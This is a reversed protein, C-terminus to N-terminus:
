FNTDLWPLLTTTFARSAARVAGATHEEVLGAVAARALWPRGLYAAGLDRVDASVDPSRSTRRCSAGSADGALHWAGNNWPCFEDRVGIVVDVPLEYRRAALARSVDVLRVWLGDRLTGRAARLDHLLSLVPDDPAMVQYETEHQLDQDLLFGWLAAHSAPDAAHAREVMVRGISRGNESAQRTRLYAFGTTRGDREARVCRLPTAGERDWEADATVRRIWRKDHQFMGPRGLAQANRVRACELASSSVEDYQLIVDQSGPVGRLLGRPDRPITVHLYESALGYGFRQYIRPESSTLGAVPDAGSEYLETLQHRMLATLLGRRRHTPRVMVYAVGTVGLQAGPVTMTLPYATAYGTLVDGDLTVISRKTEWSERKVAAVESTWNRAFALQVLEVIKPWDDYQSIVTTM